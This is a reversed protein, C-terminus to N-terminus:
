DINLLNAPSFQDTLVKVSDDWDQGAATSTMQSTIIALDVNFPLLQQQLAKARKIIAKNDPM